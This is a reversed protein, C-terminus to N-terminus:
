PRSMSLLQMPGLASSAADCFWPMAVVRTHRDLRARSARELERGHELARAHAPM